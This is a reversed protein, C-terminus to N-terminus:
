IGFRIGVTKNVHKSLTVAVFNLGVSNMFEEQKGKEEDIWNNLDFMYHDDGIDGEGENEMNM